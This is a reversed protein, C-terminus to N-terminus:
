RMSVIDKPFVPRYSVRDSPVLAVKQVWDEVVVRSWRGCTLWTNYQIAVCKQLVFDECIPSLSCIHPRVYLVYETPVSWLM